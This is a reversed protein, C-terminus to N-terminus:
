EGLTPQGYKFLAANIEFIDYIRNTIFYTVILDFRNSPSFAIEARSLLDETTALDLELAIAFAVATKKKPRYNVNSRVKSFLKRDVNAKKYVEVDTLGREDILHLLRQQFTDERNDIFQRLHELFEPDDEPPSSGVAHADPRKDLFSSEEFSRAGFAPAEKEDPPAASRCLPGYSIDDPLNGQDDEQQAKKLRGRGFLRTRQVFAGLGPQMSSFIRAIWSRNLGKEAHQAQRVQADRILTQVDSFLKGSPDFDARDFVVLTIQMDYGRLFRSIEHLAISLALDKPFGSTGSALIPCAIHRCGLRLATLFVRRYCTSLTETEGHRGDTWVPACVHIVYRANLQFGPTYACDGARMIGLKERAALMEQRGAAEFIRREAGDGIIPAPHVSNVIADAQVHSIESQIIQFSM